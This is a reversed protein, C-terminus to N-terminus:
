NGEVGKLTSMKAEAKLPEVQGRVGEADYIDQSFWIEDAGAQNQVRAAINVTQGFYDLRENLTVAIAAGSHIGIKLILERDPRGCNFHSIDSRMELAAAVAHAPTLFAAMVADGITKIIAGKHRVTM